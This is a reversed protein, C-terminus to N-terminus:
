ITVITGDSTKIITTRSPLKDGDTDIKKQQLGELANIERDVALIARIGEPTGTFQSKLSRKLKKLGAIRLRRKHELIEDPESTWRKRAESIYRKGQREEIGWKVIIQTLIDTTPWDEIIWEQVMRIRKEYEIQDTKPM